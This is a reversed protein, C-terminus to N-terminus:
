HLCAFAGPHPDGHVRGSVFLQHGFASMVTTMVPKLAFGMSAIDAYRSLKVGPIWEQVMVRTRTFTDYVLPVYVKDVNGMLDVQLRFLGNVISRCPATVVPAQHSILSGVRAQKTFQAEAKFDAERSITACVEDTTWYLPLDFTKEFAWTFVRYCFLDFPM